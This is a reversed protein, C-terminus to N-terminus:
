NSWLSISQPKNGSYNSSASNTRKCLPSSPRGTTRLSTRPKTRRAACILRWLSMMIYKSIPWWMSRARKVRSKRRARRCKRPSVCWRCGRGRTWNLWRGRKIRNMRPIIHNSGLTLSSRHDCAAIWSGQNTMLTWAQDISSAFVRMWARMRKRILTSYPIWTVMPPDISLALQTRGPGSNRSIWSKTSYITRTSLSGAVM